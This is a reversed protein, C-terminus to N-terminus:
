ALVESLVGTTHPMSVSGAGMARALTILLDPVMRNVGAAKANTDIPYRVVMGTKLAGAGGGITVLPISDPVQPYLIESVRNHDNGDGIESM